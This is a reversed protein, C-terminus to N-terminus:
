FVCSATALCRHTEPRSLFYLDSGGTAFFRGVLHNYYTADDWSKCPDGTVWVHQGTPKLYANVLGVLPPGPSWGRTNPAFPRGAERPAWSRALTADDRARVNAARGLRLPVKPHQADFRDTGEALWDADYLTQRCTAASRGPPSTCTASPKYNVDCAPGAPTRELRDVGELVRGEVLVQNPTKGGLDDYLFQPTVWDAYEPFRGLASPPLFPLIGAARAFANGTAPPVLPDGVTNGVLIPRPPLPKGDLDPIPKLMYYKAFNIPDGSELAVQTLSFLRRIEPSQRRLGLGEQPAVLTSGVPYFVDRYQQCGTDSTCSKSEDAVPGFATAPREWTNVRRGAPAGALLKCGKYSEVVDPADYVQVDIKDGVATPVAIRFRGKDDTRACRAEGNSVNTVVVTRGAGLEAPSLCAIEMEVSNILNNLVWRVSREGPACTTQNVGKKPPREGQEVGIVLPTFVQELVSDPTLNSTVAVDTLGGGGSIPASAAVFPDIAGHIMAVIGGYSNGSTFYPVNPGGLDPVGDGDFDGMAEPRGDENFDEAGPRGDFARLLRVMAIQDLVSQRVNDRSHFVHATWLLGGSDGQGDANLDEHRGSMVGKLWPVLCAQRLFVEALTRQGVELDLGHGPMNISAMAMGHQAFYGARVIIEDGHLGTGHSWVVVPFPQKRGAGPRPVSIWFPITDRRVDGEGTKYNLRFRADVPERKPDGMYYPAEFQGIVFYDVYEVIVRELEDAEPGKFGVVQGILDHLMQRAATTRVIFPQKLQPTCAPDGLPEGSDSKGVARFTTMAPPFEREIRAFPGRGYLGDRLLRMDDYNPGTTFTWAFAVHDLGTGALDGYYGARGKDSLITQLAAVGSKQQPHHVFPFPSKVAAGQASRLRDTLVVAYETMEDLPVVPRVMLTDTEREYWTLLNDIGDIGAKGLTNPHDLVGDFDLDLAPRYDAQTLGPGEERTEFILNADKDRAFVPWYRDPDKVVLSVNGHGVDLAAPVGTKLNVVYVPDNTFDYDSEQMRARVDELDIAPETAATARGRKFSVSITQYTGWGELENFGSRTRSEMPTPAVLSVNLRRGTRSTPDAFTALDTPQPVEPLPRHSTDYVVTPGDGPPTARLGDPAADVSCSAAGALVVVSALAFSILARPM